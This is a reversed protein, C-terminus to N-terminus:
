LFPSTTISPSPYPFSDFASPDNYEAGPLVCFQSVFISRECVFDRKNGSATSANAFCYAFTKGFSSGM